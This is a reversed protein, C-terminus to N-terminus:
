HAEFTIEADFAPEAPVPQPFEAGSMSTLWDSWQLGRCIASGAVGTADAQDTTTVCRSPDLLMWHRGEAIWDISIYSSTPLGAMDPLAFYSLYLGEGDTWTVKAGLQGGVTAPGALEDLVTAVGDREITASGTSFTAAPSSGPFPPFSADPDIGPGGFLLDLFVCGSVGTVLFFVALVHALGGM